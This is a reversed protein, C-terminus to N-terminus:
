GGFVIALAIAKGPSAKSGIATDVGKLHATLQTASDTHSETTPTSNSPTFKLPIKDGESIYSPNPNVPM